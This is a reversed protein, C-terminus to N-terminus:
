RSGRYGVHFDNPNKSMTKPLTYGYLRCRVIIFRPAYPSGSVSLLLYKPFEFGPVRPTVPVSIVPQSTASSPTLTRVALKRRGVLSINARQIKYISRIPRISTRSGLIPPRWPRLERGIRCRCTRAFCTGVEFYTWSNEMVCLSTAFYGKPHM